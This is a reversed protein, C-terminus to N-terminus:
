QDLHHFLEDDFFENLTTKLGGCLKRLTDICPNRDTEDILSQITREPIGTRKALTQYDLKNEECLRKLKISVCHLLDM